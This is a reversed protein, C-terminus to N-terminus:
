AHHQHETQQSAAPATWTADREFTGHQMTLEKENSAFAVIKGTRHDLVTTLTYGSESLYSVVSVGDGVRASQYREVRTPKGSAQGQDDLMKFTVAGGEEFTHEFRKGAVPGDVFSWRITKGRIADENM